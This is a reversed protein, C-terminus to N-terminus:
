FFAKLMFFLIYRTKSKNGQEIIIKRGNKKGNGIKCTRNTTTSCRRQKKVVLVIIRMIM